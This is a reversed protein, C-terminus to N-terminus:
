RVMPSWRAQPYRSTGGIECGLAHQENKQLSKLLHPTAYHGALGVVIVQAGEIALDGHSRKTVEAAPTAVVSREASQMSVIKNSGHNYRDFVQKSVEHWPTAM